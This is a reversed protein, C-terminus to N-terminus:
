HRLIGIILCELLHNVLDFLRHILLFTARHDNHRGYDMKLNVEIFRFPGLFEICLKETPFHLFGRSRGADTKDSDHSQGITEYGTAAQQIKFIAFENPRIPALVLANVIGFAIIRKHIAGYLGYFFNSESLCRDYRMNWIHGRFNKLALPNAPDVVRSRM